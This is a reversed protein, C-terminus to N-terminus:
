QFFKNLEFENIINCNKYQGKIEEQYNIFHTDATIFFHKFDLNILYNFIRLDEKEPIPHKNNRFEKQFQNFFSELEEYKNQELSNLTIEGIDKNLTEFNQEIKRLNQLYTAYFGSDFKLLNEFGEEVNIISDYYVEILKDKTDFNLQIFRFLVLNKKKAIKLFYQNNEYNKHKLEFGNPQFINKPFNCCLTSNILFTNDLFIRDFEEM